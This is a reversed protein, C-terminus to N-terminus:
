STNDLIRLVPSFLLRLIDLNLTDIPFIVIFLHYTMIFLLLNTLDSPPM